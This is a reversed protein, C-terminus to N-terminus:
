IGPFSDFHINLSNVFALSTCKSEGLVKPVVSARAVLGWVFEAPYVFACFKLWVHVQGLKGSSRAHPEFLTRVTPM